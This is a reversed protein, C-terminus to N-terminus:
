SSPMWKDWPKYLLVEFAIHTFFKDTCSTYKITILVPAGM